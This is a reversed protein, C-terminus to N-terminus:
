RDPSERSSHFEVRYGWADLREPLANFAMTLREGGENRPVEHLLYSPYLVMDGPDVPPMVWKNGNYPGMRIGAHDNSFLFDRGGLSRHFVTRTSPHMPNLFVIGSIFSNTHAHVAQAGGPALVNSWIEKIHWKLKEGFLHEGFQAMPASALREIREFLPHDSPQAIASHHLQGSYANRQSQRSQALAVCGALDEGRLLGRVRMWPTPFLSKLETTPM